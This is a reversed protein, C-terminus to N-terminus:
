VETNIVVEKVSLNEIESCEMSQCARMSIHELYIDRLKCEPLGKIQIGTGLSSGNIDSIKINSCKTPTDTKPTIANYEYFMSIQIAERQIKEMSINEFRIDRVYGGRGRISKIKVGWMTDKVTCHHIHVNQVGGSVPSGVAVAAHGGNMRCNRVEIDRCEKGIRWGDENLGANIAICDDGTNFVCGDVLVGQCSDPNLGDTNPGHSIVTVNRVTVNKCYVPHITWQPGDMITFDEFLVDKCNITQLFSPRLADKETRFIRQEVPISLVAQEYLRDAAPQQKNKWDWWDQGNGMLIGKGTIKINECGNAYILPSYNYCETGEWRTFVVPLYDERKSSFIIKSGEALKLCINSKLHIPGSHWEGQPVFVTGGGQEYCANVAKQISEFDKVSVLVSVETKRQM